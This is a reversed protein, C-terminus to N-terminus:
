GRLCEDEKQKREWMPKHIFENHLKAFVNWCAPVFKLCWDLMAESNPDSVVPTLSTVRIVSRRGQHVVQNRYEAMKRYNEWIHKAYDPELVRTLMQQGTSNFLRKLAAETDKHSRISNLYDWIEKQKKATEDFDLGIWNLKTDLWVTGWFILHFVSSEFYMAAVVASLEVREDNWMAIQDYWLETLEVDPWHTYGQEYTSKCVPCVRTQPIETCVYHCKDCQAYPPEFNKLPRKLEIEIEANTM